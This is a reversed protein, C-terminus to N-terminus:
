KAVCWSHLTVRTGLCNTLMRMFSTYKHAFHCSTALLSVLRTLQYTLTKQKEWAQGRRPRPPSPPAGHALRHCVLHHLRLDVRRQPAQHEIDQHLARQLQQPIGMDKPGRIRPQRQIECFEARGEVEHQGVAAVGLLGHSGRESAGM